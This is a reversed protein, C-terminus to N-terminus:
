QSGAAPSLVRAAVALRREELLRYQEEARAILRGFDVVALRPDDLQQLALWGCRKGQVAITLGELETLSSLPSRRVIRGNVKLRAIREAGGAVLQKVADRRAGVLKIIRELQEKDLEIESTVDALMAATAPDGHEAHADRARRALAVGGASAALHDNLYIALLDAM